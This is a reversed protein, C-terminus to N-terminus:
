DAFARNPTHLLEVSEADDVKWQSGHQVKKSATVQPEIEGACTAHDKGGWICNQFRLEFKTSQRCYERERGHQSTQQWTYVCTTCLHSCGLVSLAPGIACGLVKSQVSRAQATFEMAVGELVSLATCLLCQLKLVVFRSACSKKVENTLVQQLLSDLSM